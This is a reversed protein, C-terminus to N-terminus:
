EFINVQSATFSNQRNELFYSTNRMFTAIFYLIFPHVIHTPSLPQPISYFLNLKFSDYYTSLTPFGGIGKPLHFVRNTNNINNLNEPNSNVFFFM